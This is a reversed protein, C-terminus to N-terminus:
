IKISKALPIILNQCEELEISIISIKCFDLRLTLKLFRCPGKIDLLSKHEIVVLQANRFPGKDFVENLLKIISTKYCMKACVFGDRELPKTKSAADLFSVM